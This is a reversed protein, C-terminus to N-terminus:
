TIIMRIKPGYQCHFMYYLMLYKVAQGDINSLNTHAIWACRDDWFPTMHCPVLDAMPHFSTQTLLPFRSIILPFDVFINLTIAIATLFLLQSLSPSLYLPLPLDPM